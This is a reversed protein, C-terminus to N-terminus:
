NRFEDERVIDRDKLVGQYNILKTLEIFVLDYLLDHGKQSISYGDDGIYEMYDGKTSMIHFLDILPCNYNRAIEKIVYVYQKLRNNTRSTGTLAENVPAPTILLPIPICGNLGTRNNHARISTIIEQLNEEFQTLSILNNSISCSDNSSLNIFVINPNYVLVKDTLYRLMEKTTTGKLVANHINWSIAPYYTSLHNDLRYIYTEILKVSIEGYGVITTRIM